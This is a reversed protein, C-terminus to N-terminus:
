LGYKRMLENEIIKEVEADDPTPQIDKWCGSLSLLVEADRPLNDAPSISALIASAMEARDAQPWEKIRDLIAAKVQSDITTTM